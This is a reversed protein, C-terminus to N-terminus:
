AAEDVQRYFGDRVAEPEFGALYCVQEFDPTWIWSEGEASRRAEKLGDTLVRRWLLEMEKHMLPRTKFFPPRGDGAQGGM